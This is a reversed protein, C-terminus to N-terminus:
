ELGKDALYDYLQYVISLGRQDHVPYDLPFISGQGDVDFERNMWREVIMQIDIVAQPDTLVVENTYRKLGLNRVMEWFWVRTRDGTNIDSLMDEMRLALGVLAELVSCSKELFVIWDEYPNQNYWRERLALGDNARSEDLDLCWVFDMDHLNWLLESYRAMDANVVDCLWLFYGDFEDDM